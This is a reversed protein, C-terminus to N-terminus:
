RTKPQPEFEDEVEALLRAYDALGSNALMLEEEDDQGSEEAPEAASQVKLLGASRGAFFARDSFGVAWEALRIAVQKGRAPKPASIYTISTSVCLAWAVLWKELDEPVEFTQQEALGREAAIDLTKIANISALLANTADEGVRAMGRDRMLNNLSERAAESLRPGDVPERAMAIAVVSQVPNLSKAFEPFVSAFKARLHQIPAALLPQIHRHEIERWAYELYMAVADPFYDDLFLESQRPRAEITAFYSLSHRPASPAPLYATPENETGVLTVM